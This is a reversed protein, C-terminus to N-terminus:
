IYVNLFDLLAYVLFFIKLLRQSTIDYTIKIKKKLNEMNEQNPTILM